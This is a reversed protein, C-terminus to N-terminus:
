ITQYRKGGRLRNGREQGRVGVALKLVYGVLSHTKTTDTRAASKESTTGCKTEETRKHLESCLIAGDFVSTLPKKRM